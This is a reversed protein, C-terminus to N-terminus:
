KLIEQDISKSILLSEYKQHLNKIKELSLHFSEETLQALFKFVVKNRGTDKFNFYIDKKKNLAFKFLPLLMSEEIYPNARDHIFLAKFLFHGRKKDVFFVM